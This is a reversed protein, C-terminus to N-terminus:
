VGQVFFSFSINQAFIVYTLAKSVRENINTARGEVGASRM